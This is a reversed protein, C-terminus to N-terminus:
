AYHEGLKPVISSQDPQNLSQADDFCMPLTHNILKPLLFLM